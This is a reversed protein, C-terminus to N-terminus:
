IGVVFEGSLEDLLQICKETNASDNNLALRINKDLELLRYEIRLMCLLRKRKESFFFFFLVNEIHRDFM